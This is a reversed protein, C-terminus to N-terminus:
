DGEKLGLTKEIAEVILPSDPEDKSGFRNVIEGSENILFKNFNWTIRGSFEPNTEKSTLYKYLPHASRGNVTIKGFMPFTVGYNLSCFEQIEENSGPEQRLFENSPFGLIVLGNDAYKEYLQQLTEYQYTFGCKSAVNVILLVKGRYEDLVHNRGEIDEVTIDYLGSQGSAQFASTIFFLGTIAKKNM